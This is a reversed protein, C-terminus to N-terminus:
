PQYQVTDPATADFDDNNVYLTAGVVITARGENALQEAYLPVRVRFRDHDLWKLTVADARFYDVTTNEEKSM